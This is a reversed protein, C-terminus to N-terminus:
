FASTTTEGLVTHQLPEDQSGFVFCHKAAKLGVTFQTVKMPSEMSQKWNRPQLLVRMPQTQGRKVHVFEM